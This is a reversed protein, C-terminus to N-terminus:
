TPTEQLVRLTALIRTPRDTRYFTKGGDTSYADPDRISRWLPTGAAASINQWELPNATLGTIPRKHALDWFTKLALDFLTPDHVEHRALVEIMKLVCAGLDVDDDFMHAIGLERYAHQILPYRDLMADDPKNREEATEGSGRYGPVLSVCADCIRDTVQVYTPRWCREGYGIHAQCQCCYWYPKVTGRSLHYFRRPAGHPGIAHLFGDEVKILHYKNLPRYRRRRTM